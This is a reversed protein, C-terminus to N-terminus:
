PKQKAKKNKINKFFYKFEISLYGNTLDETHEQIFSNYKHYAVFTFIPTIPVNVVGGLYFFGANRTRLEFGINGNFGFGWINNKKLWGTHIFRHKANPQNVTGVSTPRMIVTGGLSANMFWQEALQINFFINLPIDYEIFRLNDTFFLGSDAISSNLSFNRQTFNLGTEISILKTLGVRVSAGATFGANQKLSSYFGNENLVVERKGIFDTPFNPRIAIGFYSPVRPKKEKKNKQADVSFCILFFICLLGWNKIM